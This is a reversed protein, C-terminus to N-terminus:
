LMEHDFEKHLPFQATLEVVEKGTKELFADNDINNIFQLYGLLQDKFPGLLINHTIPWSFNRRWEPNILSAQYDFPIKKM